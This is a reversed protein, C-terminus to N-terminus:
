LLQNQLLHVSCCPMLLDVMMVYVKINFFDVFGLKFLIWLSFVSGQCSPNSSWGPPLVSRNGADGVWDRTLLRSSGM